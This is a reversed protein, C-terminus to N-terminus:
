MSEDKIEVLYWFDNYLRFIYNISVGTDEIQLELNYESDTIKSIFNKYGVFIQYNWNEKEFVIESNDLDVVNGEDDMYSGSEYIYCKLPFDIRDIQFISDKQFKNFFVDFNEQKQVTALATTESSKIETVLNSNNNCSGLLLGFLLIPNLLTKNM